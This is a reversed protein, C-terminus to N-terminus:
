LWPTNSLGYDNRYTMDNLFLREAQQWSRHNTLALERGQGGIRIREKENKLYYLIMQELDVWSNYVLINEGDITGHPWYIQPDSMVLAGSLLMEYLRSHGEWRDRQALVIIKTTMMAEIFDPHVQQRGQGHIFGVIDTNTTINAKPHRQPITEVIESIHNRFECHMNCVSSNWFTRVDIQRPLQAITKSLHLRTQEIDGNSNDAAEKYASAHKVKMYEDIADVIPERVTMALRQISRCGNGIIAKGDVNMATFNIPSGSYEDFSLSPNMESKVKQSWMDMYRGNQTSRTAYNIRNWGLLPAMEHQMYWYPWVGMGGDSSELIFIQWDPDMENLEDQTFNHLHLKMQDTNLKQQMNSKIKGDRQLRIFMSEVAVPLLQEIVKTKTSWIIVADHRENPNTTTPILKATLSNHLALVSHFEFVKYQQINTSNHASIDYNASSIKDIKWWIVNSIAFFVGILLRRLVIQRM